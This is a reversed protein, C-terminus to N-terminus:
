RVSILTVLGVQIRSSSARYSMLIEDLSMSAMLSRRDDQVGCQTQNKKQDCSDRQQGAALIVTAGKLLPQKPILNLYNKITSIAAQGITCELGHYM